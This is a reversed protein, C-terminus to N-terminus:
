DRPARDRPWPNGQLGAISATNIISGGGAAIMHRIAHWSAVVTSRVNLNM